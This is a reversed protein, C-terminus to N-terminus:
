ARAFSGIYSSRLERKMDSPGPMSYGSQLRYHERINFRWPNLMNLFPKRVGFCAFEDCGWPANCKELFPRVMGVCDFKDCIVAVGYLTWRDFCAAEHKVKNHAIALLTGLAYPDDDPLAIESANTEKFRGTLMAKFVPSINCLVTRSVTITLQGREFFNEPEKGIILTVADETECYVVTPWSKGAM